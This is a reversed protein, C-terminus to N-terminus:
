PAALEIDLINKWYGTGRGIAQLWIWYWRMQNVNAPVDMGMAKNVAWVQDFTQNNYRMNYAGAVAGTRDQGHGCHFLIVTATFPAPTPVALWAHLLEIQHNLNDFDWSHLNLARIALEPTIPHFTDKSTNSETHSGVLPPLDTGIMPWNQFDIFLHPNDAKFRYETDLNRAESADQFNMLSILRMGYGKPIVLGTVSASASENLYRSLTDYLFVPSASMSANTPVNGRFLFTKATSNHALLKFRAPNIDEVGAYTPISFLLAFLLTSLLM